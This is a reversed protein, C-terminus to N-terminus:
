VTEIRVVVDPKIKLTGLLATFPQIGYDPQHLRVETALANGKRAIRASIPRLVGHLSLKGSVTWGEPSASFSGSTLAIEPFRSTHLVQDQIIRDIEARDRSALAGPNDLGDRMACDVRLSRPDFRAQVIAREVDVEISFRLVRIKLDHAVTSLLGEKFTLVTCRAISADLFKPVPTM